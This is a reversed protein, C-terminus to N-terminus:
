KRFREPIMSEEEPGPEYESSGWNLSLYNERTMPIGKLRMFETTEDSGSPTESEEPLKLFRNDQRM